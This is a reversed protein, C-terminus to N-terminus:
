DSKNCLLRESCKGDNAELCAFTNEVTRTKQPPSRAHAIGDKDQDKSFDRFSLRQLILKQVICGVAENGFRLSQELVHVVLAGPIGGITAVSDKNKISLGSLRRTM